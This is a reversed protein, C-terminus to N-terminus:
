QIARKRHKLTRYYLSSSGNSYPLHLIYAFPIHKEEYCYVAQNFQTFIRIGRM